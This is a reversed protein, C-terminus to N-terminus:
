FRGQPRRDNIRKNAAGIVELEWARSNGATINFDKEQSQYDFVWIAALAVKNAELRNLFKELRAHSEADESKPVQFEGVFLPKRLQAAVEVAQTLERRL